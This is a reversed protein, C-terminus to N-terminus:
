AGRRGKCKPFNNCGYFRGYPGHCIHTPGDCRPCNGPGNPKYKYIFPSTKRYGACYAEDEDMMQDLTYDAMDGM